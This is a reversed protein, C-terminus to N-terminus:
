CTLDRLLQRPTQTRDRRIKGSSISRRISSRARDSGLVERWIRLQCGDYRQAARSLLAHFLRLSVAASRSVPSLNLRSRAPELRCAAVERKSSIPRMHGSVPGPRPNRPIRRQRLVDVAHRRLHRPVSSEPHDSRRHRDAPGLTGTRRDLRLTRRRPSHNQQRQRVEAPDSTIACDQGLWDLAKKVSVLNGAGYDVIAIM